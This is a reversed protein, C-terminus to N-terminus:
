KTKLLINRASQKESITIIHASEQLCVMLGVAECAAESLNAVMVSHHYTGPTETLIKRLLPHNPNSLELLRMTSLIGFGTEFFPMLGIIM